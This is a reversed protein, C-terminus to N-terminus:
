SVATISKIMKEFFDDIQSINLREIMPANRNVLEVWKNLENQLETKQNIVKSHFLHLNRENVITEAKEVWDIAEQINLQILSLKSQILYIDIFLPFSSIIEAISTMRDLISFIDNIIGEYNSDRLEWLLLECANVGSLITLKNEVLPKEVIERFIKLAKVKNEARPLSKEILGICINRRIEIRKNSTTDAIENILRLNENAKKTNTTLVMLYVLYMLTDSLQLPDDNEKFASLCQSFNTIALEYDGEYLLSQGLFKLWYPNYKKKNESGIKQFFEDMYQLALNLEGKYIFMESIMRIAQDIDNNLRNHRESNFTISLPLQLNSLESEISEFFDSSYYPVTSLCNILISLIKLLIQGDLSELSFDLNIGLLRFSQLLQDSIAKEIVNHETKHLRNFDSYQNLSRNLEILCNYGSYIDNRMFFYNTETLVNFTQAIIDSYKSM